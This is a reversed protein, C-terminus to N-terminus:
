FCVEDSVPSYIITVHMKKAEPIKDGDKNEEKIEMRM